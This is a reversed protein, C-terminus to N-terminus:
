RRVSSPRSRATRAVPSSGDCDARSPEDGGGSDQGQQPVGETTVVIQHGAHAVGPAADREVRIQTRAQPGALPLHDGLDVAEGGEGKWRTRMSLSDKGVPISIGLAEYGNHGPEGTLHTHCDILGPLVTANSLDIVRAGAPAQGSARRQGRRRLWARWTAERSRGGGSRETRPPAVARRSGPRVPRGRRDAPRPLPPVPRRAAVPSWRVSRWQWSRRDIM